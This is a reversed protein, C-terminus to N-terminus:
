AKRLIAKVKEKFHYPLRAAMWYQIILVRKKWKRFLGQGDTIMAFLYLMQQNLRKIEEKEATQVWNGSKEIQCNIENRDTKNAKVEVSAIGALMQAVDVRTHQNWIVLREDQIDVNFQHFGRYNEHEAENKKHRLFLIGGPKLVSLCELIGKVPDYSHDLANEIIILSASNDSYFSSLYEVFASEIAPAALRRKAMIANYFSALPDVRHMNVKQGYLYDGNRYSMGCGVDLVLLPEESQLLAKVKEPNVFNCTVKTKGSIKKQLAVRRKKDSLLGNWYAIEHPIGDLWATIPRTEPAEQRQM